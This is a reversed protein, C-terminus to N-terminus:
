RPGLNNHSAGHGIGNGCDDDNDEEDKGGFNLILQISLTLIRQM